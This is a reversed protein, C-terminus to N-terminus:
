DQVVFQELCRLGIILGEDEMRRGDKHDRFVDDHWGEINLDGEYGQRRM